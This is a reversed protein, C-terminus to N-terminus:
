MIPHLKSDLSRQLFHCNILATKNFM